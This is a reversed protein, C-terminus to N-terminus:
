AAIESNQIVTGKISHVIKGATCINVSIVIGPQIHFTIYFTRFVMIKSFYLFATDTRMTTFRRNCYGTANLHAINKLESGLIGFGHIHGINVSIPFRSIRNHSTVTDTDASKGGGDALRVMIIVTRYPRQRNRRPLYMETGNTSIIGLDLSIGVLQIFFQLVFTNLDNIIVAPDTGTYHKRISVKNAYWESCNDTGSIYSM